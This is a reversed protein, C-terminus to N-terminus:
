RRAPVGYRRAFQEARETLWRALETAGTGRAYDAATFGSDNRLTPDAGEEVLLRVTTPRDQRAAMMLPTTRNPSEADIYAHNELLFRVVDVHGNAAAYHLATWGSRNVEAKRSVLFSVTPLEGHLAAYMLATAGLTDPADLDTGRLEALARTAQWAKERAAYVLAPTGLEDRVNGDIGRLMAGQVAAADDRSIAQFFETRSQAGAGGHMTLALALALALLLQLSIFSKFLAKYFM